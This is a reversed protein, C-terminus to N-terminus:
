HLYAETLTVDPRPGWEFVRDFDAHALAATHGYAGPLPAHHATGSHSFYGQGEAILHTGGNTVLDLAIPRFEGSARDAREEGGGHGAHGGTPTSQFWLRTRTADNAGIEKPKFVSDYDGNGETWMQLRMTGDPMDERQATAKMAAFGAAQLRALVVDDTTAIVTVLYHHTAPASADDFAPPEVRMGVYGFFVDERAEGDLTWGECWMTSHWNGMTKGETPVPNEPDPVESYLLQPGVDSLIDAPMWPEPLPNLSVPHVSHGGGEFCAAGALGLPGALAADAAADPSAGDPDPVAAPTVCGASILLILAVLAQRM